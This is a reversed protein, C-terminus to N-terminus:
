FYSSKEEAPPTQRKDSEEQQQRRAAADQHDDDRERDPGLGRLDRLMETARQHPVAQSVFPKLYEDLEGNGPRDLERTLAELYGQKSTQTWDISIGARHALENHVVMLTRGNGDLFPHAHALYGMVEGPHEAMYAQDQGLRLAYHVADFRPHAFFDNRDGKAIAIDPATTQRDQGAWPYVDQFLIRHTDLVDQYTVQEANKLHEVAEDLRYRFARQEFEKIATLDRFGATNRLYGREAFDGFPDFIM